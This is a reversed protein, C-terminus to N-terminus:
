RRISLSKIKEIVFAKLKRKENSGLFVYSSISVAVAIIVAKFFSILIEDSLCLIAPASLLLSLILVKICILYCAIIEKLSYDIQKVLVYPKVVMSFGITVIIGLYQIWMPGGGMKLVFYLLIFEGMGLVVAAISNIKMKNAALMPTYFSASFTGIIQRIIFWQSFAIAYVPVEVLWINMLKNMVFVAPLGVLLTLDFSYITTDLTIKKSGERDGSAYLKIIQPNIATRFNNIFQLMANSVQVSIAQAAAVAPAFFLNILILIGQQGLTNSINAMINWGSFSLLSRLIQNDFKLSFKCEPFRRIGYIRYIAAVLTQVVFVLIAYFVLRDIEAQVILYCIGLKAFAEFISIYAYVGMQEHAMISATYPVQTISVVTTLISLHFVWLCATFREPPIVMKNYLFWLGGTEMLLVVVLALIVHAYLATSFTRNLRDENGRGLEYTLFRSTGISLTGNLFSLIAVASGVVNYLGYDDIGLKDLIVRSTYLTVVMILIMRFYLFMTNKAIRKNDSM